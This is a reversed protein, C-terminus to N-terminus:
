VFPQGETWAVLVWREGSLVPTSEHLVWSPWVVGVGQEKSISISEPGAHILVESGKYDDSPSLQISLSLKRKNKNASWDTHAMHSDGERYRMVQIKMSTYHFKLFNGVTFVKKIHDYLGPFKQEDMVIQTASCVSPEVGFAHSVFSLADKEQAQLALSIIEDCEEPTFVAIESAIGVLDPNARHTHHM